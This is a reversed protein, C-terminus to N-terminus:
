RIGPEIYMIIRKTINKNEQIRICSVIHSLSLYLFFYFFDIMGTYEIKYHFKQIHHFPCTM